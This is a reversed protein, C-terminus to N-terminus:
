PHKKLLTLFVGGATKKRKDESSIPLDLSVASLEEKLLFAAESLLM